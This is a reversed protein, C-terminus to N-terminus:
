AFREITEYRAPGDGLHSAVLEVETATWAAGIHTGSEVWPWVDATPRLRSVTLHGVFPRQEPEVGAAICAEEIADVLATLGDSEDVGVWLVQAKAPRPFAGLGGLRVAVPLPLDAEDLAALLRDRGVAGVDGVFRLTIHWLDPSVRAGPVPSAAFADHLQAAVAHVAAAPPRLALFLRGVGAM